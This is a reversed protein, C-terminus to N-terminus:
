HPPEARPAALSPRVRAPVIFTQSTEHDLAIREDPVTAQQDNRRETNDTHAVANAASWPRFWFLMPTKLSMISRRARSSAQFFLPGAYFRPFGSNPPARQSRNSDQRTRDRICALRPTTPPRAPGRERREGHIRLVVGVREGELLEEASEMVAKTSRPLGAITTIGDISWCM